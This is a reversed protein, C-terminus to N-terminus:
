NKVIKGKIDQNPYKVEFISPDLSPYIINNKTATKIDYLNGSYGKTIDYFNVIEFDSVSQVGEVKDLETMLNSINLAMNIQMKDNDLIKKLLDVCRILVENSNFSPRPVIEFNIGINIIHATKINIADTLMRFNSLYTRLNQKLAPNLPVLNKNIDYSLTYLNLALPNSITDRPYTTDNSDQQTDGVIYAKAVSGFKRPLSYCRVIYDERTIARNQSAFSAMANQRLTEIDEKERGGTAPIANNIAVSSKVFALDVQGLSQDDNYEIENITTISNVNSNDSVGGGVSYTVTLSINDPALGYTRTRLFNTPDLNTTTTRKLYELGMGVNKPNPILEEDADSSIGSGFVLEFTNDDRLRKIFRRPTRKLKLIYPVTSKYESLAEDNFKVNLVDEFITDQALYDVENWTNGRSDVVSIIDLLNTDPLSIKDYPKPDGFSFTATKVDGSVVPVSKKLLYYQVNGDADLEYVSIDIPDNSGSSRFNVPELSRFNVGVTNTVQMGANINLAYRYDPMADDGTGIAPLLQYVDLETRAPSNLQTQYGFLQALKIVSSNEQAESLINERFSQDSYYSLVDGVYSAMEIFMMGPSSENFDSYTDPFYNKAFNVLNSRFQGFDKNIYKIDKKVLSM